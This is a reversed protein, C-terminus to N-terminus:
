NLPIFKMFPPQWRFCYLLCPMGKWFPIAGLRRGTNQNWNCRVRQWVSTWARLAFFSPFSKLLFSGAGKFASMICILPPVSWAVRKTILSWKWGSPGSQKLALGERCEYCTSDVQATLTKSIRLVISLAHCNSVDEFVYAGPIIITVLVHTLRVKFSLNQKGESFIRIRKNQTSNPTPSFHSPSVQKKHHHKKPYKKYKTTIKSRSFLM